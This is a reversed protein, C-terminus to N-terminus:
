VSSCRCLLVLRDLTARMHARSVTAAGGPRTRAKRNRRRCGHRVGAIGRQARDRVGGAPPVSGLAGGRVTGGADIGAEHDLGSPGAM